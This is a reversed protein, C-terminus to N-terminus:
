VQQLVTMTNAELEDRSSRTALLANLIPINKNPRGLTDEITRQSRFEDLCQWGLNHQVVYKRIIVDGLIIETSDPLFPVAGCVGVIFAVQINSYSSRLSATASAANTKDM